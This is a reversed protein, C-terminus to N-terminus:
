GGRLFYLFNFLLCHEPKRVNKYPNPHPDPIRLDTGEVLQDLDQEERLLGELHWCFIIKKRRLNKHENMKSPVNLDNKM